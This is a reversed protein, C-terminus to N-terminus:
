RHLQLDDVCECLKPRWEDVSLFLATDYCCLPQNLKTHTTSIVAYLIGKSSCTSKDEMLWFSFRYILNINGSTVGLSVKWDRMSQCCLYLHMFFNSQWKVILCKIPSWIGDEKELTLHLANRQGIVAATCYIFGFSCFMLPSFAWCECLFFVDDYCYDLMCVSM